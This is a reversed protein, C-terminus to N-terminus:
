RGDVSAPRVGGPDPTALLALEGIWHSHELPHRVKLDVSCRNHNRKGVRTRQVWGEAVPGAVIAHLAREIIGVRPVMDRRRYEPDNAVWTLIHGHNTLSTWGQKGTSAGGGTM